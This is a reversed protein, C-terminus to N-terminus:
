VDAPLPPVAAGMHGTKVYILAGEPGTRPHHQSYRPNRIWTGQPYSGWEDHFEGELVLIEEGGPHVHPKFVTHPAWRVLATNVGDHEHLPLVSLGTVQGPYWPATRTQIHVTDLDEPSFQWLKVFLVCGKASSPAHASGPPNRLYVGPGYDGWEDSFTGELVLIEEGGGHRHLPFLAGAEYRVISTARAVEDGTRDLMRRKVGPEPSAVWPLALTDIVVRQGMDANLNM